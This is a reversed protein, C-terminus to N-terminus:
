RLVGSVRFATSLRKEYGYAYGEGDEIVSVSYLLTVGIRDPPGFTFTRLTRGTAVDVRLFQGEDRGVFVSQGDRSWGIIQDANGLWPVARAPAGDLPILRWGEGVSRSLAATGQPNLAAHTMGALAAVRTPPGGGISQRYFSTTEGNSARFLVHQSDPFWTTSFLQYERVEGRELEIPAGPGTPYIMFRHTAPIMSAAWRGDPSLGQAHGEGIESVPAGDTTRLCLTYNIRNSATSGETFLIQRGDRSLFAAWSSGIWTLDREATQGPVKAGVRATTDERTALVQGNRAIDHVWMNGPSAWAPRMPGGSAPVIKPLYPFPETNYSGSFLLYRGDPSWALGQIGILEDTLRTVRGARDVVEVFGRDDFRAQHRLFAVRAGDPSVRLDSLYGGSEILTTGIPYELRDRGEHDRIIALADGDGWDAERVAALILRPAGELSMRALTGTFMRGSVQVADTLVALEGARSVSLLHTRPQGFAQQQASGSRIVSLGPVRRDTGSSIVVTEGDPMFRANLITQPQYTLTQFSVADGVTGPAMWWGAAFGAAAVALAGAALRVVRRSAPAGAVAPRAGTAIRDSGSLNELAFAIDRATQFREAPNKELCHHVIRDLAPSIGAADAALPPPDERLIATMTEAATDRQFARRGTLMEYLVAGFAFLDTRADVAGGRVQEPAMYGVTGLVTGPDTLAAVTEAASVEAGAAQRALGFDLIKVRGDGLLFINEPKLDRHVLQRDHAAALGRAIQVAYDITKRTAVAGGRLRERLTEGELLETVAYARGEAVGFDFLTLVNPHSITAVTQAEREFRQRREEDAAVSAPLVKVAVARGLRTDRARYVEGMGGQGIAAEVVYPGLAAGPSLSVPPM